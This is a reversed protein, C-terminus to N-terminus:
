KRELGNRNRTENFNNRFVDLTYKSFEQDLKYVAAATADRAIKGDAFLKDLIKQATCVPNVRTWRPAMITFFLLSELSICQSIVSNV